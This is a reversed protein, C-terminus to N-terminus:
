LHGARMAPEFPQQIDSISIEEGGELYREMLADDLEVVRDTIEQHTTAISSFDPTEDTPAFFCDAVAEGRRAPLNLPLCQKGFRERIDRLVQQLDTGDADIKNVIVLRCLRREAAPAMMRQAVSEAGGGRK